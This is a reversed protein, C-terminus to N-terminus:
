GLRRPNHPEPKLAPQGLLLGLAPGPCFSANRRCFCNLPYADALSGALGCTARVAEMKLINWLMARDEKSLPRHSSNMSANKKAILDKLYTCTEPGLVVLSRVIFVYFEKFSAM